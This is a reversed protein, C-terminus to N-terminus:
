LLQARSTAFDFGRVLLLAYFHLGESWALAESLRDVLVLKESLSFHIDCFQVLLRVTRELMQEFVKYTM